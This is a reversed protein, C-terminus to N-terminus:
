LKIIICNYCYWVLYGKDSLLVKFLYYNLHRTKNLYTWFYSFLEVTIIKVFSSTMYNNNTNLVLLSFSMCSHRQLRMEFLFNMNEEKQFDTKTELSFLLNVHENKAKTKLACKYSLVCVIVKLLLHMSRYFLRNPRYWKYPMHQLININYIKEIVKSLHFLKGSVTTPGSPLLPWTM